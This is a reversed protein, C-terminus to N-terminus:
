IGRAVTRRRERTGQQIQRVIYGADARSTGAAFHYHVSGGESGSGTSSRNPMITGATSPRFPEGGGGYADENRRYTMGPFVAGGSARAGFIFSGAGGLLGSAGGMGPILSLLGFIAARAMYEEVMKALMATFALGIGEFTKTWSDEMEANRAAMRSFVDDLPQFAYMLAGVSGEAFRNAVAAKAAQFKEERRLREKNANEEAIAERKEEAVAAKFRTEAAGNWARQSDKRMAELNRHHLEAEDDLTKEIREQRKADMTRGQETDALFDVSQPGSGTINKSVWRSYSEAGADKNIEKVREAHLRNLKELAEANGKLLGRMKEYGANEDRLQTAKDIKKFEENVRSIATSVEASAQASKGMYAAFSQAAQAQSGQNNLTSFKSIGYETQGKQASKMSAADIDAAKELTAALEKYADTLTKVPHTAATIGATAKQLLGTWAGLGGQVANDPVIAAKFQSWATRANDLENNITNMAPPLKDAAEVIKGWFQEATVGADRLADLNTTGFAEQMLMRIRPMSEAIVTIDEQLIRGKGLMQLIQRNVSAFQEGGGGALAVANGISKMMHLAKDAEMNLSRFGLYGKQLPELDVGPESALKVLKAQTEAAKELSGEISVLAKANSQWKASETVLNGVTGAVMGIAQSAIFYKSAVDTWAIGTKAVEHLQKTSAGTIEDLKEKLRSQELLYRKGESSSYAAIQARLQANQRGLAETVANATPLMSSMGSSAKQGAAAGENGIQRLENTIKQAAGSFEDRLIARIQLDAM